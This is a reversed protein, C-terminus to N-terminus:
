SGNQDSFPYLNQIKVMITRFQTHNELSGRSRIFTNTKKVGFSFSLSFYGFYIM